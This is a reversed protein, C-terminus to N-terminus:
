AELYKGLRTNSIWGILPENPNGGKSVFIDQCSSIEDLKRKAEAVTTNEAVLVFGKNIGFEVKKKKMKKIFDELNDTEQGGEALLYQSVKSEHIMYKPSRDATVIPLRTINREPNFKGRLESVKINKENQEKTIQIHETENFARMISSVPAKAAQEPTIRQVLESVLENAAEFNAKGFYFALVTGVWSAVVPLIVNFINIANGPDERIAAWGVVALILGSFALVSYAVYQQSDRKSKSSNGAM